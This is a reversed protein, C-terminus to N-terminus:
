NSLHNQKHLKYEEKLAKTLLQSFNVGADKAWDNLWSPITLTKKIYKNFNRKTYEKVDVSITVVSCHSIEFEYKDCISQLNIQELPTPSPIKEGLEKSLELFGALCDVAMQYADNFDSGCTIAGKLDPFIVTIGDEETDFIAPYISLM